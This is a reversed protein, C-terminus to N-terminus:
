NPFPLTPPPRPLFCSSSVCSPRRCDVDTTLARFWYSLVMHSGAASAAFLFLPFLTSSYSQPFAARMSDVCNSAIPREKQSLLKAAPGAARAVGLHYLSLKYHLGWVCVAFVLMLVLCLTPPTRRTTRHVTLLRGARLRHIRYIRSARSQV